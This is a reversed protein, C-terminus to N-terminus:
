ENGERIQKPTTYSIFKGTKSSIEEWKQNEFELIVIGCKKMSGINAGSLYEGFFTIDPNHGFLILTEATEPATNVSSLYSRPGGDYLSQLEVIKSVDFHLQDAVVEATKSARPAKSTVYWDPVIKSESLWKGVIAAESLGKSVLQRDFDKVRFNMDEATAHRVLVLTKTM